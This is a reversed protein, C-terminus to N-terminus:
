RPSYVPPVRRTDICSLSDNMKTEATEKKPQVNSLRSVEGDAASVMLSTPMQTMPIPM